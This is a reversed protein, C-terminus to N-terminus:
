EKTRATLVRWLRRDFEDIRFIGRPDISLSPALRRIVVFGMVLSICSRLVNAWAAGIEDALGVGVALLVIAAATSGLYILLEWRQEGTAYLIPRQSQSFAALPILLLFLRFPPVARLYQQGALLLIAWSATFNGVIAVLLGIWFTYKQAQRLAVRLQDLRSQALESVLPFLTAELSGFLSYILVYAKEAAAYTGVSADGVMAELFWLPLQSGVRKAPISLTAYVGKQAFLSALDRYNYKKTSAGQFEMWPERALCLSVLMAMMEALPYTLAVGLLRTGNWWWPLTMRWALSGVSRTLAQGALRRYRTTSHFLARAANNLATLWLHIGMTTWLTPEGQWVGTGVFVLLLITAMAMVFMSYRSMLFRSWGREGGGRARAIEATFVGELGFDLFATGTIYFSVFLALQGYDAPALYAFVLRAGLVSAATSVATELSFATVGQRIREWLNV